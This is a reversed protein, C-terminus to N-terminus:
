SRCAFSASQMTPDLQAHNHVLKLIRAQSPTLENSQRLKRQSLNTEITLFRYSFGRQKAATTKRARAHTRAHTRTHTHTHTHTHPKTHM